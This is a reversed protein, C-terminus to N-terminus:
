RLTDWSKLLLNNNLRELNSSKQALALNGFLDGIGVNQFNQDNEDNKSNKISDVRTSKESNKNFILYLFYRRKNNEEVGM